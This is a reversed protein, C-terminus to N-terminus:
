RDHSVRIIRGDKKSIEIIAVGGKVIEKESKPKPMSGGVYWIENELVAGFPKEKDITEKGYIPVLVAMAIQLATNEDPVFGDKPVYSHKQPVYSHKQSEEALGVSINIFVVFILLFLLSKM